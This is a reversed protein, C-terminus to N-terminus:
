SSNSASSVVSVRVAEPDTLAHLNWEYLPNTSKFEDHTPEKEPAGEYRLIASNIGNAFGLASTNFM